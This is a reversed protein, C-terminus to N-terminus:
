GDGPAEQLGLRREFEDRADPTVRATVEDGWGHFRAIRGGGDNTLTRVRNLNVLFSKHTQMLRLDGAFRQALATLSDFNAYTQGNAAYVVLADSKPDPDTTIFAIESIALLTLQDGAQATARVGVRRMVAAEEDFRQLILANEERLRKVEGLLEALAAELKQAETPAAPPAHPTAHSSM